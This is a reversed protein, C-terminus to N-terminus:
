DALASIGITCVFGSAGADAFLICEIASCNYKWKDLTISNYIASDSEESLGFSSQFWM